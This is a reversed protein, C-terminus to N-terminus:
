RGTITYVDINKINYFNTLAHRARKGLKGVSNEEFVNESLVRRTGYAPEAIFGLTSNLVEDEIIYAHIKKKRLRVKFLDKVNNVLLTGLVRLFNLGAANFTVAHRTKTVLANNSALGGGLSHGIFFLADNKCVKKDLIKAIRVSQSYQASIGVLGQTLNNFWDNISFFNTGCTCYAYKKYDKERKSYLQSYFGSMKSILLKHAEKEGILEDIETDSVVDWGSRMLRDETRQKEEDNVGKMADIVSRELSQQSNYTYQCLTVFDDVDKETPVDNNLKIINNIFENGGSSDIFDNKNEVLECSKDIKGNNDIYPDLLSIHEIMLYKIKANKFTKSRLLSSLEKSVSKEDYAGLSVFFNSLIDGQNYGFVILHCRIFGINKDVLFDCLINEIQKKVRRLYKRYDKVSVDEVYIPISVSVIRHTGDELTDDSVPISNPNDYAFHSINLVQGQSIRKRSRYIDSRKTQVGSCPLGDLYVYITLDIDQIQQEKCKEIACNQANTTNM